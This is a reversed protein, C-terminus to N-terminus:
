KTFKCKPYNSYGTFNGYRGKREVLQNGCRPCIGNYIMTNKNTIIQRIKQKHEKKTEKNM